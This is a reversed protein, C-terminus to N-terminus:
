VIGLKVQGRIGRHEETCRYMLFPGICASVIIVIAPPVRGSALAIFGTAALLAFQANPAAEPALRVTM